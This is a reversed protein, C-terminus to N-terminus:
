TQMREALAKVKTDHLRPLARDIMGLGEQQHAVVERYFLTDFAAGTARGLSDFMKRNSTMVTPEYSEGYKSRLMSLLERQDSEQQARVTKADAVVQPSVAQDLVPATMVILGEHHDAMMRLFAQDADKPEGYRANTTSVHDSDGTMDRGAAASASPPASD